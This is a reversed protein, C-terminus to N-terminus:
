SDVDAGFVGFREFKLGNGEAGRDLERIAEGKVWGWVLRSREFGAVVGGRVREVTDRRHLAGM